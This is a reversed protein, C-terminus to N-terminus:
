LTQTNMTKIVQEADIRRARQSNEVSFLSDSLQARLEIEFRSHLRVFQRWFVSALVVFAVGLVVIGWGPLVDYPILAVLWTFIALSALGKLIREFVPQLVSRKTRGRTASEACIMALAEVNRWLAILPALLLVGFGFWFAVPLGNAIPWDLGLWKEALAYLPAAFILLGSIFLTMLAAQMFRPATLRWLLNSQQRQKLSEIWAHYFGIWQSLRLPQKQEIWDSLTRSRRILVPTTLSTLLCVGIALAYFSQPVMGGKVGVLAIILSFEGIPTLCLAARAADGIPNGVALLAVTAAIMRWLVAIVFVALAVPWVEALLRIDFFMGMAVFFVPGFVESLGGLVREVRENKGTSAVVTGLLFAGLAASFGAKASLLAMALLLGVIVLARVESSIGHGLRNLLAPVLLLAGIAMTVIVANLRIITGFLVLSDTSGIQILSTVVTLMVMAVLDDLATVTLAIQGFRTHTANAERLTKGLVATSSVMLMAGLVLGYEGPWGFAAAMLRCGTLVLVAIIGTALLLPIGVGKLRQLKLGQGISFILFVLGIQALAQIRDSDSILSLSHTNPGVMIGATIYGIVVPLGIRQCLWAAAAALLMVLGLDQIFDIGSM